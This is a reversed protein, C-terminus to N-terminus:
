ALDAHGDGRRSPTGVAVFIVDAARVAEALNTTFSVLGLKTGRELLEGLGPEYIPVGGTKLAAIKAEDTDVSAVSFGFSAFCAGTVLGVYGCGIMAIKM